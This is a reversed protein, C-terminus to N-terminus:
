SGPAGLLLSHFRRRSGAAFRRRLPPPAVTSRRRLPPSLARVAADYNAGRWYNGDPRLSSAADPQHTSGPTSRATIPVSEDVIAACGRCQNGGCRATLADSESGSLRACRWSVCASPLLPTKSCPIPTFQGKRCTHAAPTGSPFSTLSLNASYNRRKM